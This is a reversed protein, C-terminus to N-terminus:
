KFTLKITKAERTRLNQVTVKRVGPKTVKVPLFWRGNAKVMGRVVPKGNMLLMVRDGPKGKGGFKAWGQKVTSFNSHSSIGFPVKKAVPKKSVPKKAVPKKAVPKKAAATGPKAVPKKTAALNPKTAPAKVVPAKAIPKKETSATEAAASEAAASETDGSIVVDDGIDNPLLGTPEFEDDAEEEAEVEKVIDTKQKTSEEVVKKDIAIFQLEALVKKEDGTGTELALHHSGADDVVIETFYTGDVTATMSDVVKGDLVLNLRQQKKVFGEITYMGVGFSSPSKPYTIQLQKNKPIAKASGGALTGIPDQLSFGFAGLALFTAAVLQITRLSM